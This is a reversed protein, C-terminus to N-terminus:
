KFINESHDYLQIRRGKTYDPSLDPLYKIVAASLQTPNLSPNQCCILANMEITQDDKKSVSLKRIMPLIDQETVGNKGKKDVILSEQNFLQGIKEPAGVPVGKDYELILSCKLYALEKLKRFDSYVSLVRIGDVLTQNLREMIEQCSINQDEIEFDLLECESEMGVSLPLAISVSPRPNFGQTHKLHLGSRKFARQFMRMTDLHSIWVANGKKIFLM